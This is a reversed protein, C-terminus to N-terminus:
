RLPLPMDFSAYGVIYPAVYCAIYPKDARGCVRCRWIPCVAQRGEALADEMERDQEHLQDEVSGRAQQWEAIRELTAELSADTAAALRAAFQALEPDGAKMGGLRLTGERSNIGSRDLEDQLSALFAADLGSSAQDEQQVTQVAQEADTAISSATELALQPPTAATKATTVATATATATAIAPDTAAAQQRSQQPAVAYAAPLANGDADRGAMGAGAGAGAGAGTGTSAASAQSRELELSSLASEIHRAELQAHSNADMSVAGYIRRSLTEVDRGNAFAPLGCLRQSFGPLAAAVGSVELNADALKTVLLQQALAPSFDEFVFSESVRSRLGQNVRLM